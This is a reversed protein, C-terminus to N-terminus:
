AELADYLENKTKKEDERQPPRDGHYLIIDCCVAIYGLGFQIIPAERKCEPCTATLM